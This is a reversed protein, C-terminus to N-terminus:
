DRKENDYKEDSDSREVHAESIADRRDITLDLEFAVFGLMLLGVCPTIPIQNRQRGPPPSPSPEVVKSEPRDATQINRIPLRRTRKQTLKV